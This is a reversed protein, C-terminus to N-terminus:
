GGAIRLRAEDSRRRLEREDPIVVEPPPPPETYRGPPLGESALALAVEESRKRLPDQPASKATEPEDDRGDDVASKMEGMRASAEAETMHCSMVEDGDMVAWPEDTSCADPDEVVRMMQKSEAELTAEVSKFSLFKTDPNAPAPVISVEYLDIELLENVGDRRKRQKTALYGFSLAVANNKVSRWAEKAVDSAEIDLRGAVFLGEKVERMSAPDVWGIISDASGEHDWHLPIKKQSTQWQGITKEFAGPVIQDRVRDVSYAAAIATFEGQETLTAAKTELTKHNM